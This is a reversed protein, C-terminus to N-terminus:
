FGIWMLVSRVSQPIQPAFERFLNGWAMAALDMAARRGGQSLNSFGSPLYTNGVFGGAAAGVLNSLAPMCHGSDSRDVLTFSLAHFSRLFPNRSTSPAYRPDEGTVVGTLFRASHASVREAVADGYNRGFGAAGQRWATPYQRHGNVPSWAMRLGARFAPGTVFGPNLYTEGLYYRFKDSARFSNGVRFSPQKTHNFAPASADLGRPDSAAAITGSLGPADPLQSLSRSHVEQALSSLPLLFHALMTLVMARKM